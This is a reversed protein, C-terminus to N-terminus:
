MRAKTGMYFELCVFALLLFVASILNFLKLSSLILSVILIVTLWLSQRSSARFYQSMLERQGFIRRLGVGLLLFLSFSVLALLAYVAGIQVLGAPALKLLVTALGLLSGFCIVALAITYTRFKQM